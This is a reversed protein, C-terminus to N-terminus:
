REIQGSHEKATAKKELGKRFEHAPIFLASALPSMDEKFGKGEAIRILQRAYFGAEASDELSKIGTRVKPIYLQDVKGELFDGISNIHTIFPRAMGIM